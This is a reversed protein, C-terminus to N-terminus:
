PTPAPAPAPATQDPGPTESAPAVPDGATVEATAAQPAAPEEGVPSPSPSAAPAPKPARWPRSPKEAVEGIVVSGVGVPGGLAPAFSDVKVPTDLTLLAFLEKATERKLRICGHSAPRHGPVHGVHMGLGTPTMRMWYPMPSGVFSAGEPVVHDRTDADAVMVSGDSGVIRGYLNSSYSVKKDLIKYSGKPTPHSSRGTAVPFDLAIAGDVLLLGRQERLAIEVATNDGGAKALLANDRYTKKRWGAESRFAAHLERARLVQPDPRKEFLACGALLMAGCFAALVAVHNVPRPPTM